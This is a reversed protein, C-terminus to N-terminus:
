RLSSSRAPGAEAPAPVSRARPVPVDHAPGSLSGSLYDVTARLGEMFSVKPEYGLAHHAEAISAYSHLVDGTREADFRPQVQTGLVSCVADVLQLLSVPSSTAINFIRGAVQDREAALLNSHVVNAVYTFDRTQLGDGYIVPPQRRLIQSIFRPIVAAYESSPSQRPGFVNFYRLSVGSMGFCHCHSQLLCEGAYKSAAYPSRPTPPMSEIKPLAPADGYVSSSAAYIVRPMRGAKEAHKRAAELVALTGLANVQVFRLPEEVSRPVSGLAAQHFIIEAGEGAAAMAAPDLISGLVFRIRERVGRLNELSANSLHDIVSVIAGCSVLADVLHSGIFGAGGTVLAKM